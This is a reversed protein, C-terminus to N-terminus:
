YSKGPSEATALFVDGGDGLHSGEAVGVVSPKENKWGKKRKPYNRKMHGEEDCYYCKFKQSSSRSCQSGEEKERSQRRRRSSKKTVMAVQVDNLFRNNGRWTENMLLAVLVKDLRLTEKGLLLTTVINDFSSPPLLPLFLM